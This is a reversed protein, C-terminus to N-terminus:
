RAIRRSTERPMTARLHASLAVAEEDHEAGSVIGDQRRDRALTPQLVVAPRVADVKPHAYPQM